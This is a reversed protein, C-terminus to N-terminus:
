SVIGTLDAARRDIAQNVAAATFEAEPLTVIFPGHDGLMYSVEIFRTASGSADVSTTTRVKVNNKTLDAM